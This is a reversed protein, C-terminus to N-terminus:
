QPLTDGDSPTTSVPPAEPQNRAKDRENMETLVDKIDLIANQVKRRHIWAAVWLIVIILTIVLSSITAFEIVNSLTHGGSSAQGSLQLLGNLSSQDM